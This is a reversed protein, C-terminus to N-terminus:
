IKGSMAMSEMRLRSWLLGRARSQETFITHFSVGMLMLLASPTIFYSRANRITANKKNNKKNRGILSERRAATLFTDATKAISFLSRYLHYIDILTYRKLTHVQLSVSL